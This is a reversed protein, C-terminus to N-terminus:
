SHKSYIWNIEGATTLDFGVEGLLKKNFKWNLLTLDMKFTIKNFIEKWKFSKITYSKTEHLM